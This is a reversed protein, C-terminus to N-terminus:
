RKKFEWKKDTVEFELKGFPKGEVNFEAVYTGNPLEGAAYTRKLIREGSTEIKGVEKKDPGYLRSSMDLPINSSVSITVTEGPTFTEKLGLYDQPYDLVKNREFDRTDNSVVAVVNDEGYKREIVLPNERPHEVIMVSPMKVPPEVYVPASTLTPQAANNVHVNTESRGAEAAGYNAFQGGLVQAAPNNKYVGLMSLGAGLVSKDNLGACGSSISAGLIVSM